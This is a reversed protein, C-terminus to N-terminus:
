HSNFWEDRERKEAAEEIEQEKLYREYEDASKARDRGKQTSEKLISEITKKGLNVNKKTAYASVKKELRAVRDMYSKAEEDYQSRAEESKRKFAEAARRAAYAKVHSGELEWTRAQKELVKAREDHGASAEDAKAKAHDAYGKLVGIKKYKKIAKKEFKNYRKEGAPTLSGDQNQFRRKGWKQGKIGHHYLTGDKSYIEM